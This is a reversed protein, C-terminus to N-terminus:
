RNGLVRPAGAAVTFHQDSPSPYFRVTMKRHCNRDCRKGTSPLGLMRCSSNLRIAVTCVGFVPYTPDFLLRWTRTGM